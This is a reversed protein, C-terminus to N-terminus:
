EVIIKETIGGTSTKMTVIYIGPKDFSVTTTNTFSGSSIKAGVATFITYTVEENTGYSLTVAENVKAPNPAIMLSTEDVANISVIPKIKSSTNLITTDSIVPLIAGEISCGKETAISLTVIQEKYIKSALHCMIKKKDGNVYEYQSVEVRTTDGVLTIESPDPFTTVEKDYELYLIEGNPFIFANILSIDPYLLEGETINFYNLNFGSNEVKMKFEISDGVPLEIVRHASSWDTFSGTAPLKIYNIEDEGNIIFGIMGDYGAVDDASYRVTLTYKKEEEVSIFYTCYDGS